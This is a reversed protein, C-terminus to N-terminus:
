VVLPPEACFLEWDDHLERRLQSIRGASLGFKDAVDRTREGALLEDIIRRDRETRSARWNPFDCRFCVQEVVPSRANDVL